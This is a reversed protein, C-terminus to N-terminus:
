PVLAYSFVLTKSASCSALASGFVVLVSCTPGLIGVTFCRHLLHGSRLLHGLHHRCLLLGGCTLLGHCLLSMALGGSQSLVPLIVIFLRLPLLMVPLSITLM